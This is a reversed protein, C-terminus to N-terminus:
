RREANFQENGGGQRAGHLSRHECEGLRACDCIPRRGSIMGKQMAGGAWGRCEGRTWHIGASEKSKDRCAAAAPRVRKRARSDSRSRLPHICQALRRVRVSSVASKGHQLKAWRCVSSSADQVGSSSVSSAQASRPYWASAHSM